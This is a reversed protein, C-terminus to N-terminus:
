TPAVSPKPLNEIRMLKQLDIPSQDIPDKGTMRYWGVFAEYDYVQGNYLVPNESIEHTILCEENGLVRDTLPLTDYAPVFNRQFKMWPAWTALYANLKADDCEELIATGAAQIGESTIQACGRFIMNKTSVPLNLREALGIQFALQVEIEDVWTLTEMHATAKANVMELLLFSRGLARLIEPNQIDQREINYVRVMLEIQDLASIIRDDCSALGHYILDVARTKIEEDEAMLNFADLVRVALAARTQPNKYEATEILRGLFRLVNPLHEVITPENLPIECQAAQKWFQLVQNLTTFVRSQEAAPQSFIFQMGPAPTERLRNTIAESLGTGELYVTRTIGCSLPGLTTIWSPLSTLSTCGSLYLYGGVQPRDPLSTLHTCGTLDLAGRVHLGEPLSTLGTCGNLTLLGGVQLREPLSTLGTCGYLDLGGEAQLGKPLLTLGTCRYLTLYGEVQLGKPLSTLGTCSLNLSGEVKLGVPLSTLSFMRSLDLDGTVTVNPAFSHNESLLKKFEGPSYSKVVPSQVEISRPALSPATDPIPQPRPVTSGSNQTEERPSATSQTQNSSIPLSM